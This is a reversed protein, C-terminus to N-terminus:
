QGTIQMVQPISGDTKYNIGPGSGSYSFCKFYYTTNPNLNSFWAGVSGDTVNQDSSSNIYTIGDLPIQIDEFGTNSMRVLYGDPVIPGTANTWLLHINHASFIAPYDTPEGLLFPSVSGSCSVNIESAGGGTNSVSEDSYSGTILGAKLRVYIVTNALTSLTYPLSVSNGFTTNDTSVEFHTNGSVIINGSAPSLSTASLSYNQSVSPGSNFVYTFGTLSVVQSSLNVLIVPTASAQSVTVVVPTLGAVTVTINASRLLISTNETYNANITGNGNGSGTVTCWSQNSVATWSSNSTLIFSTTGTAETVNQLSPTVSLTPQITTTFQLDNGYATGASNTAYARIHYTTSAALGTVSSTFAGTGTGDTTHSNSIAPSATTAWCVGRVSITAGGDSSINGGSSATIPTISTPTTTSLTALNASTTFQLDNGYATGAASTAYARVHYVTGATLGTISSTFTGTGSGDTTHNGSVVPSTTTAWCVGRATVTSSGAVTVNGGSSATSATISSVATTTITPLLVSSSALWITANMILTRHNGGADAIWGDYLADNPDGSGDDCPSSDGIGVVRGNGYSAYAVMANTSGFASGTTYVVGLVSSNNATSLTMTTGASWMAQSVNGMIGHLLPDGPLAPINSTTQSISVYDFSMGFPNSLIGNNTMFDNWIHPSDDGDGNRDSANHDSVMFLGGGNQVFQMLATKEATTFLINPECVVFVKYNSLDQTNSSNGYSIQGNYPLSEVIYGQKVLDIGWASIGGQWYSQLTTSTVGSQAPNPIQQANSETGGGLVAPGSSYGLNHLDADIVWDASGATEAKTADFLIKIQANLSLSFAIFLVLIGSRRSFMQKPNELQKITRIKTNRLFLFLYCNLLFYKPPSPL